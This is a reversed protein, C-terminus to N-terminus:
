QEEKEESIKQARYLVYGVGVLASACLIVITLPYSIVRRAFDTVELTLSKSIAANTILTVRGLSEGKYIVDVYGVEDGLRVPAEISAYDIHVDYDIETKVDTSTPLFALLECSPVAAVFDAQKSLTVPIDAFVRLESLVKCYGYNEVGFDLLERSVTYANAERGDPYKSAGSTDANMVVCLYTLNEKRKMSLLVGQGQASLLGNISSDLYGKGYYTSNFLNRSYVTVSDAGVTISKSSSSAIDLLLTNRSFESALRAVDRATTKAGSGGSVIATYETHTMSLSRAKENMAAICSQEDGFAIIAL